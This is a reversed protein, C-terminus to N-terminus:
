VLGFNGTDFEHRNPIVAISTDSVTFAFQFQKRNDINVWERTASRYAYMRQGHGMGSTYDVAVLQGRLTLLQVMNNYYLARNKIPPPPNSYIGLPTGNQVDETTHDLSTCYLAGVWVVLTSGLMTASPTNWMPFPSQIEVWVPNASNTDLVEIGGNSGEGHVVVIRDKYNVVAPSASGQKMPPYASEWKVQDICSMVLNSYTIDYDSYLDEVTKGGIVLWNGKCAAIGFGRVKTSITLSAFRFANPPIHLFGLYTSSEDALGICVVGDVEVANASIM